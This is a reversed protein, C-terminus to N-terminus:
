REISYLVAHHNGGLSISARVNTQNLLSKTAFLIIALKVEFTVPDGGRM